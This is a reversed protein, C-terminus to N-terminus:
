EDEAIWWVNVGSVKGKRLAGKDVLKDLRKQAGKHTSFGLNDKVYATGVVPITSERVVRLVEEDDHM